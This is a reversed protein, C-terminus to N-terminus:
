GAQATPAFDFQEVRRHPTTRLHLNRLSRPFNSQAIAKKKDQEPATHRRFAQM